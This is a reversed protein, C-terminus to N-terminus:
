KVYTRMLDSVMAVENARRQEDTEAVVHEHLHANLVEMMLGHVAGRIAAIQVLVQGCDTDADLAKELASVQGGIRHVRSLLKKQNRAVHTM